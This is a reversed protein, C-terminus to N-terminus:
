REENQQLRGGSEEEEEREEEEEEDDEEEEENRTSASDAPRTGGGLGFASGMVTTADIPRGQIAMYLLLVMIFRTPSRNKKASERGKM